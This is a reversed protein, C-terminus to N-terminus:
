SVCVTQLMLEIEDKSFGPIYERGSRISHLNTALPIRWQDDDSPVAYKVTKKVIGPSLEEIKSYCEKSIM